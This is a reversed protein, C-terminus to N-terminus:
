PYTSLIQDSFLRRTLFVHIHNITSQPPPLKKGSVVLGEGEDAGNGVGYITPPLHTKHDPLGDQHYDSDDSDSSGAGVAALNHQNPDSSWLPKNDNEDHDQVLEWGTLDEVSSSEPDDGKVVQWSSSLDGNSEPETETDSNDQVLGWGGLDVIRTSESKSPPDIKGAQISHWSTSDDEKSKFHSSSSSHVDEDQVSHWGGSM